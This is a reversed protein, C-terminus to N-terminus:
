ANEAEVGEQEIPKMEKAIKATIKRDEVLTGDVKEVAESQQAESDLEVFGFGKSAKFPKFSKAADPRPRRIGTVVKASKVKISLNTFITALAEDDVSFPLNAVFVTSKSDEGTLELRPQREKKPRPAKKKEKAEGEGNAGNVDIRGKSAPKSEAAEPAAEGDVEGDDGEGPVRRRSKKAAKPKNAKKKPKAEGEKAEGDAGTPVGAASASAAAKEAKKANFAERSQKRKEDRAKRIELVEDAPRALELKVKRDGLEKDKLQDIAKQADAENKYTVFAYGAPRKGFKLPLNVSKIEGGVPAVFERVQEETATYSLNGIYVRHGDEDKPIDAVKQADSSASDTTGSVFENAAAVVSETAQKIPNLVAEVM